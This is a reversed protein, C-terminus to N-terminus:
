RKQLSQMKKQNQLKKMNLSEERKKKIKERVSEETLSRQNNVENSKDYFPKNYTTINEFCFLNNFDKNRLM